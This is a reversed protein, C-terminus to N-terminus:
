AIKLITNNYALCLISNSKEICKTHQVFIINVIFYSDSLYGQFCNKNKSWYVKFSLNTM